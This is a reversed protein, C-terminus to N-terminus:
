YARKQLAIDCCAPRELGAEIASGDDLVVEDGGAKEGAKRAFRGYAFMREVTLQFRDMRADAPM